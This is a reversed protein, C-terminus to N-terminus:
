SLGTLETSENELETAGVERHFNKNNQDVNALQTSDTDKSM